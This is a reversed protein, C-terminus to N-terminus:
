RIQFVILFYIQMIATSINGLLWRGKALMPIVAFLVPHLLANPVPPSEVSINAAHVVSTMVKGRQVAYSALNGTSYWAPM